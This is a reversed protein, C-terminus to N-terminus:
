HNPAPAIASWEAAHEADVAGGAAPNKRLYESMRSQRNMGDLEDLRARAAVNTDRRAALAAEGDGIAKEMDATFSEGKTYCAIVREM